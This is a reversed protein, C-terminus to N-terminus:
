ANSKWQSAAGAAGAGNGAGPGGSEPVIAPGSPPTPPKTPDDAPIVVTSARDADQRAIEAQMEVRRAYARANNPNAHDSYMQGEHPADIQQQSAPVRVSVLSSDGGDKATNAFIADNQEWLKSAEIKAM